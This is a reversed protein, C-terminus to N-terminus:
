ALSQWFSADFDFLMEWLFLNWNYFFLIQKSVSCVCFIQMIFVPTPQILFPKKLIFSWKKEAPARLFLFSFFLKEELRVQQVKNRNILPEKMFYTLLKGYITSVYLRTCFQVYIQMQITYFLGLLLLRTVGM